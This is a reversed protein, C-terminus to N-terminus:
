REMIWCKVQKSQSEPRGDGDTDIPLTQKAMEKSYLKSFTAFNMDHRDDSARRQSLAVLSITLYALALRTRHLDYVSDYEIGEARLDGKFTTLASELHDQLQGDTAYNEIAPYARKLDAITTGPIATVARLRQLIMSRIVPQVQGGESTVCNVAEWLEIESAQATPNPDNQAPLTYECGFPSVSSQNWSQGHWFAGEGTLAAAMSPMASFLHIEPQQAPLQFPESEQQPYFKRAIPAGYLYRAAGPLLRM